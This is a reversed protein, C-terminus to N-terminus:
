PAGGVVGCASAQEMDVLDVWVSGANGLLASAHVQWFRLQTNSLACLGSM